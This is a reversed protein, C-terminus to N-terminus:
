SPGVDHQFFLADDGYGSAVFPRTCIVSGLLVKESDDTAMGHLRYLTTGPAVGRLKVRYDPEPSSSMAVESLPELLIRTPVVPADVQSGDRRVGALHDVPLWTVDLDRVRLARVTRMSWKFFFWVLPNTPTPIKNSFTRAFPNHDAGQGDFTELMPVNVSPRGDVLFKLAMSPSFSAGPKFLSFRGVGLAGTAFIGTFPHGPAPVFEFAMDCGFNHFLKTRGPPLEDACHEFTQRMYAIKLSGGLIARVYFPVVGITPLREAPHASGAIREYLLEQKRQADLDQYDAPLPQSRM